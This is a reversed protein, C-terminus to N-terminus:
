LFFWLGLFDSLIGVSYDEGNLRAVNLFFTKLHPFLPGCRLFTM